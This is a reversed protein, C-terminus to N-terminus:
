QMLSTSSIGGNKTLTIEDSSWQNNTEDVPPRVAPRTEGSVARNGYERDVPNVVAECVRARTRDNAQMLVIAQLEPLREIPLM